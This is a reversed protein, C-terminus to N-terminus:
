ADPKDATPATSAAPRGPSGYFYMGFNIRGRPESTGADRAALELARRQVAALARAAEDRAVQALEAIADASLGVQFVCQEPLPPQALAQGSPASPIMSPLAVSTFGVMQM